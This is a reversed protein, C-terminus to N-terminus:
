PASGQRISALTATALNGAPIATSNIELGFQLQELEKIAKGGQPVDQWTAGDAIGGTPIPAQTVAILEPDDWALIEREQTRDLTYFAM